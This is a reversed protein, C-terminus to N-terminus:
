PITPDAALWTQADNEDTCLDVWAVGFLFDRSQTHPLIDIQLGNSLYAGDYDYGYAGPDGFWGECGITLKGGREYFSLSELREGSEPCGPVDCRNLFCRLTHAGGDRIYAYQLRFAGDADPFLRKNEVRAASVPIAKGDLTVIIQGFPTRLMDNVVKQNIM